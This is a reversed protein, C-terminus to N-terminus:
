EYGRRRKAAAGRMVAYFVCRAAHLPGCPLSAGYLVISVSANTGANFEDGTAITV